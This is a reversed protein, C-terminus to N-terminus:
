MGKCLDDYLREGLAEPTRDPPSSQAGQSVSLDSSLQTQLDQLLIDPENSAEGIRPQSNANPSGLNNLLQSM